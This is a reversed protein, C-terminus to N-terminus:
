LTVGTRAAIYRELQALTAADLVRGVIVTPYLKGNFPLSANNRRGIFLVYNGFNGTGQDAASTGDVVGNIRNSLADSSIDSLVTLVRTSPAAYTTGSNAVTAITGKSASQVSNLSGSRPWVVYFTGNNAAVDASTELVIGNAADSNKYVGACVTVEDTSSMDLTSATYASDDFGDHLLARPVGVDAYDTATTVRQYTTATSGLELQAGWLFVGSTGDGTYVASSGDLNYAKMTLSTATNSTVTLAIRYWGNGVFSVVGSAASWGSGFTSAASLVAGTQLNVDISAGSTGGVNAAAAPDLLLRVNRGAYKAYVSATYTINTASKAFLQGIFHTDSPTSDDTLKDATLTGDPATTAGAAVTTRATQWTTNFQQSRLALNVRADLLPRSASTPQILHTGPVERISM